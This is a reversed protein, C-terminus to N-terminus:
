TDEKPGHAFLWYRPAYGKLMVSGSVHRLLGIAVIGFLLVAHFPETVAAWVLGAAAITCFFFVFEALGRIVPGLKKVDAKTPYKM